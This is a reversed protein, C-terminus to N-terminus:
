GGCFRELESVSIRHSGQRVEVAKIRGDKIARWLTCRSLGTQKVAESMRLLRLSVPREPEPLGVLVATM